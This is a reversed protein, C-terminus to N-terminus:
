VVITLPAVITNTLRSDRCNIMLFRQVRKRGGYPMANLVEIKILFPFNEFHQRHTNIHQGLVLHSDRTEKRKRFFYSINTRKYSSCYIFYDTIATLRRPHRQDGM